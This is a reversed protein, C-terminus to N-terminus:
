PLKACGYVRTPSNRLAHLPRNRKEAARRIHQTVSVGIVARFREIPRTRITSQTRVNEASIRPRHSRFRRWQFSNRHICGISLGSPAKIKDYASHANMQLANAHVPVGASCRNSDVQQCSVSQQTQIALIQIQANLRVPNQPSKSAQRRHAVTNLSIGSVIAPALGRRVSQPQLPTSM